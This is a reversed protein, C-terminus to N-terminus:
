HAPLLFRMLSPAVAFPTSAHDEDRAIAFRVNKARAGLFEAMARAREIMMRTPHTEREGVALFFRQASIDADLLAARLKADNWWLSPSTAAIGQLQPLRTAAYLAFYGSLSHGFLSIRSPDLVTAAAIAPLAREALMTAFREGAGYPVSPTDDREAPAFPTFDAFRRDQPPDSEVSAIIAPAVHTAEPRKAIRRAVAAFPIFHDAGDLVLLLPFGAPPAPSVPASVSLTYAQGDSFPLTTTIASSFEAKRWTLNPVDAL